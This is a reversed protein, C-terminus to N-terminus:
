NSLYYNVCISLQCMISEVASVELVQQNWVMILRILRVARWTIDM